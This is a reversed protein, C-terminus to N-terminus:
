EFEVMSQYYACVGDENSSVIAVGGIPQWGDGICINVQQTLNIATSDELILYRKIKM